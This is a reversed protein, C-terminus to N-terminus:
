LVGNVSGICAGVLLIACVTLPLSFGSQPMQMALAGAVLMTAGVSLDIGAAILVFVMGSAAIAIPSAEIAIKLLNEASLFTSEKLGFIALVGVLLLVSVNDLLAQTLSLKRM